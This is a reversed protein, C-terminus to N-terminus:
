SAAFAQLVLKLAVLMLLAAFARQVFVQPLRHGLRRALL